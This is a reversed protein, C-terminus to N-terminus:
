LSFYRSAEAHNKMLPAQSSVYFSNIMWKSAVKVLAINITAPGKEYEEKCVYQGIERSPQGTSAFAITSGKCADSRVLPGLGSLWEFASALRGSSVSKVLSPSARSLLESSNWHSTISAVASQAYAEGEKNMEFGKYAIYGVSMVALFILAAAVSIISYILKRM